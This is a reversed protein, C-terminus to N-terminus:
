AARPTPTIARPRSLRRAARAQGAAVGAQYASERIAAPSPGTSTGLSWAAVGVFTAVTASLVFALMLGAISLRPLSVTSRSFTEFMALRRHSPDGQLLEAGATGIRSCRRPTRARRRTARAVRERGLLELSEYLGPSVTSGTIAVRVPAYLVRPKLGESECAARLAVEIQDAQWDAVAGLQSRAAALSRAADPTAAVKAWAQPDIEVPGFLFGCMGEFQELVRLKEQVLAAAQRVRDPQAALPSGRWQLHELVATPSRRPRCRGCTSATRAM